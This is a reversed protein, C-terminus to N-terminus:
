SRYPYRTHEKASEAWKKLLLAELETHYFVHDPTDPVTAGASYGLGVVLCHAYCVHM